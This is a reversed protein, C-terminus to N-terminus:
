AVNRWLRALRGDTSKPIVLPAWTRARQKCGSCSEGATTRWTVHVEDPKDVYTLYCRCNAGCPTSGDGPVHPPRVGFAAARGHEYAQTSSAYYLKARAGIQAESLTGAAVDEAFARLYARQAEVLADAAEYDAPTMANLGGKGYALQATFLRHLLQVMEREWDQVSIEEDALRRTLADVDTRRREQFGDRLDVAKSSSLFRGTSVERFRRARLDFQWEAM